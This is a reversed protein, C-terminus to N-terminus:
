AKDKRLLIVEQHTPYPFPEGATYTTTIRGRTVEVTDGQLIELEPAIFLKTEYSIVNQAERQGNVALAKQSIRCPQNEYVPLLGQKTEGNPKKGKGYRSITARDEYMKEIAKRHRKYNIM